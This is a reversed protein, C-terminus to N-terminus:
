KSQARRATDQVGQSLEHFRVAFDVVARGKEFRIKHGVISFGVEERVDKPKKVAFPAFLPLHRLLLVDLDPPALNLRSLPIGLVKADTHAQLQHLEMYLIQAVSDYRIGGQGEAKVIHTSGLIHVRAEASFIPGDATMEVHPHEVRWSYPISVPKRLLHGEGEFPFMAQLMNNVASQHVFVTVNPSEAMGQPSTVTVQPPTGARTCLWVLVGGLAAIIVLLVIVLWKFM